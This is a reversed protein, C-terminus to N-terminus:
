IGSEKRWDKARRQNIENVLWASIDYDKINLKWVRGCAGPCQNFILDFSVSKGDVVEAVPNWCTGNSELALGDLLANLVETKTPAKSYNPTAVLSILANRFGLPKKHSAIM